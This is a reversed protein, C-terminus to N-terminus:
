DCKLHYNWLGCSLLMVTDDFGAIRNRFRDTTIRFRKIGYIAHDMLVRFGSIVKNKAREDDTLEKGKPRKKPMAVNLDPYDNEIGKFGLDLWLATNEQSKGVPPPWIDKFMRYDHRKGEVTPSLYGIRRNKDSIILNKHTHM